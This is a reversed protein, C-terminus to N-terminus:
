VKVVKKKKLKPLYNKGFHSAPWVLGMQLSLATMLLWDAWVPLSGSTWTGPKNSVMHGETIGRQVLKRTPCSATELVGCPITIPSPSYKLAHPVLHMGSVYLTTQPVLSLCQSGSHGGSNSQPNHLHILKLGSSLAQGLRASLLEEEWAIVGRLVGRQTLSLPQKLPKLHVSELHLSTLSIYSSNSPSFTRSHLCLSINWDRSEHQHYYSVTCIRCALAQAWLQQPNNATRM